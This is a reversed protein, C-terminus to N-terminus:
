TMTSSKPLSIADPVITPGLSAIFDFLHRRRSRNKEDALAILLNKRATVGLAEALKQISVVKEPTARHVVDVLARITEGTALRALSEQIASRLTENATTRALQQLHEVVALSEAFDGAKLHARVITELRLLVPRPDRATGLEDILDVLVNAVQLTIAGHEVTGARDGLQEVAIPTSWSQAGDTSYSVMVHEHNVGDRGDVLFRVGEM